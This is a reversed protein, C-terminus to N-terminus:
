SDERYLEVRDAPLTYGASGLETEFKEAKIRGYVWVVEMAELGKLPEDSKVFIIQNPPPPPVHICAGFFPVLFFEKLEAGEFDLPVVFGPIKVKKGDMAPTIPAKNWRELFELVVAEARPDNDSMENIKLDKFLEEPDWAPDVLDDWLLWNKDLYSSDSAALASLPGLAGFALFCLVTFLPFLARPM